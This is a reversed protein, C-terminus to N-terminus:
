IQTTCVRICCDMHGHIEQQSRRQFWYRRLLVPVAFPGARQASLAASKPVRSPLLVGTQQWPSSSLRAAPRLPQLGSSQRPPDPEAATNTALHSDSPASRRSHCRATCDRMGFVALPDVASGVSLGELSRGMETRGVTALVQSRALINVM